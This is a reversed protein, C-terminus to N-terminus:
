RGGGTKVCIDLQYECEIIRQRLAKYAEESLLIGGFPAPEGKKIWHAKIKTQPPPATYSAVPVKSCASLFLLLVVLFAKVRRM